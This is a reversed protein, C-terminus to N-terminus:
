KKLKEYVRKFDGYAQVLFIGAREHVEGLENHTMVFIYDSSEGSFTPSKKFRTNVDILSAEYIEHLLTSVAESFECDIGVDVIAAGKDSPLFEVSGSASKTDVYLRVTRLGLMYTGVFKRM